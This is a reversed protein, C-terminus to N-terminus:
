QSLILPELVTASFSTPAQFQCISIICMLAEQEHNKSIHSSIKEFFNQILQQSMQRRSAWQAIIMYTGLQYEPHTSAMLGEGLYPIIANL